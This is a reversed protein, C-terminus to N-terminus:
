AGKILGIVTQVEPSSEGDLDLRTVRGTTQDVEVGDWDEVSNDPAWDLTSTAGGTLADLVEIATECDAAQGPTDAAGGTTCEGEEPTDWQRYGVLRHQRCQNRRAGARRVRHWVASWAGHPEIIWVELSQGSGDLQRGGQRRCRGRHSASRILHHLRGQRGNPGGM